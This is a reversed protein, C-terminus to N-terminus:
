CETASSRVRSGRPPSRRSLFRVVGVVADIAAALGELEAVFGAGVVEAAPEQGVRFPYHFGLLLTYVVWGEVFSVFGQWQPPAKRVASRLLLGPM